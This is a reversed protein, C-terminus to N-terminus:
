GVHGRIREQQHADAHQEDAEAELDGRDREVHPRGVGILARWSRDGGEHRYADLEGSKGTEQPNEQDVEAGDARLPGITSHTIAASVMVTPLTM